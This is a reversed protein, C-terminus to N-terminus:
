DGLNAIGFIKLVEKEWENYSAVAQERYYALTNFTNIWYETLDKQEMDEEFKIAETGSWILVKM